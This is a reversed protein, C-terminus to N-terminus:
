VQELQLPLLCSSSFSSLRSLTAGGPSVNPFGITKGIFITLLSCNGDLGKKPFWSAHMGCHSLGVDNEGGVERDAWGYRGVRWLSQITLAPLDPEVPFLIFSAVVTVARSKALEKKM